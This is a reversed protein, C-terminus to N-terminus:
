KATPFGKNTWDEVFSHPIYLVKVNTFGMDNMTQYAPRINPCHSWPCCGCYLVIDTDRNLGKAAEKLSDIGKGTSAPGIYKAGPIHSQNFLFQFGVQFIVPINKKYNSLSNKLEEITIVDNDKWPDSPKTIEQAQEKIMKDSTANTDTTSNSKQQSCVPIIILASFLFMQLLKSLFIKIM